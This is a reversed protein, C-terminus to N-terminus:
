KYEQAIRKLQNFRKESYSVDSNFVVAYVEALEEQTSGSSEIIDFQDKTLCNPRHYPFIEALNNRKVCAETKDLCFIDKSKEISKKSKKM